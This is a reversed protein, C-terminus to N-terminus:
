TPTMSGSVAVEVLVLEAPRYSSIKTPDSWLVDVLEDDEDEVGIVLGIKSYAPDGEPKSFFGGSKLNVRDGPVFSSM